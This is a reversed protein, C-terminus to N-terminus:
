KSPSIFYSMRIQINRGLDDSFYRFQNLYDRYAVNFVNRVSMGLSIPHRGKSITTAAHVHVVTYAEPPNKYDTIGTSKEPVRTQKFIHNADMSVYSDKFLKGTKFAYKWSNRIRDAPMLILWTSRTKDRARLLSVQLETSIKKVPNASLLVDLGLLRADTQQYVMSPFAGANTLVPSDPRPTLYIFDGIHQLHANWEMKFTHAHNEYTIKSQASLSREIRLSPDGQEFTATGHHIGRSLLENVHPSRSAWGLQISWSLDHVFSPKHQIFFTAAHTTFRFRNDITDGSILLRTTSLQRHDVRAGAQLDWQKTHWKYIGYLGGSFSTFNPIFYRGRYVNQQQMGNLGWISTGKRRVPLELYLEEALTSIRLDLQPKTNASSRVIDFEKRENQQGSIM